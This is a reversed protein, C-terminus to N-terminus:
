CSQQESLDRTRTEIEQRLQPIIVRRFTIAVALLALGLVVTVALAVLNSVQRAAPQDGLRVAIRDPAAVILFISAVAAVSFGAKLILIIPMEISAYDRQLPRFSLSFLVSTLGIALFAVGIVWDGLVRNRAAFGGFCGSTVIVLKSPPPPHPCFRTPIYFVV